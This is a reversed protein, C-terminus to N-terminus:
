GNPADQFLAVPNGETDVVQAYRGVGIDMPPLLVRGGAATVRAIAGGMEQVRIVLVPREAPERRPMLAGNIAGPERPWMRQPDTPATQLLTYDPRTPLSTWGFAAEYFQQARAQNDAPIEFHM